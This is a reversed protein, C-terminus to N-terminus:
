STINYIFYPYEFIMIRVLVYGIQVECTYGVSKNVNNSETDSLLWRLLFLYFVYLFVM